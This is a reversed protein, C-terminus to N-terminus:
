QKTQDQQLTLQQTSNTITPAAIAPKQYNSFRFYVLIAVAVVVAVATVV